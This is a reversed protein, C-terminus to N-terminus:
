SVPSNSSRLGHSAAGSRTAFRQPAQPLCRVAGLPDATAKAPPETASGTGDGRSGHCISRVVLRRGATGQDPGLSANRGEQPKTRGASRQVLIPGDFLVHVWLTCRFLIPIINAKISLDHNQRCGQNSRQSFVILVRNGNWPLAVGRHRKRDFPWHFYLLARCANAYSWARPCNMTRASLNAFQLRRGGAAENPLQWSSSQHHRRQRCRKPRCRAAISAGVQDAPRATSGLFQSAASGTGPDASPRDRGDIAAPRSREGGVSAAALEVLRDATGASPCAGIRNRWDVTAAAFKADASRRLYHRSGAAVKRWRDNVVLLNCFSCVWVIPSESRYGHWPQTIPGFLNRTTGQLHTKPFVM